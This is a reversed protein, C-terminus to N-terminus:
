RGPGEGTTGTSATEGHGATEGSAPQERGEGADGDDDPADSVADEVPEFVDVYSTYFAILGVPAMVAILAGVFVMGLLPGIAPLLLLVSVLLRALIMALLLSVFCVLFARWNRVAAGLSVLLSPFAKQGHFYVLLPAFWSALLLPVLLVLGVLGAVAMAGTVPVPGSAAGAAAGAAMGQAVGTGGIAMMVGVIMLQGVLYIGGIAVLDGTSSLFGSAFHTPVIPEGRDVAQAALAIGVSFVPFLLGFVLPGVVQLLSSVVMAALLGLLVLMWAGTSRRFIVYANVLWQAGRLARLVRPQPM